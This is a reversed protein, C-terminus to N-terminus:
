AHRALKGRWYHWAPYALAAAVILLFGVSQWFAIPDTALLYERPPRSFRISGTLVARLAAGALAIAPSFWVLVGAAVLCRDLLPTSRTRPRYVSEVGHWVAMLLALVTALPLIALLGGLLTAATMFAAGDLPVVLSWIRDLRAFLWLSLPLLTLGALLLFRARRRAFDGDIEGARRRPLLPM